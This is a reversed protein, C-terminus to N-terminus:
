LVSQWLEINGKMANGVEATEVSFKVWSSFESKLANALSVKRSETLWGLHRNLVAICDNEPIHASPKRSLSVGCARCAEDAAAVIKVLLPDRRAGGPAHHYEIVDVLFRPLNWLKALWSGVVCHDYEDSDSYQGSERIAICPLEGLDHLLGAVYAKRPESYGCATAIREAFRAALNCHQSLATWQTTTTHDTPALAATLVLNRLRAVGLLVVCDEFRYPRDDEETALTNAQRIVQASLSVDVSLVQVVAKLDLVSQSLLDNLRFVSHAMAPLGDGYRTTLSWLWRYNDASLSIEPDHQRVQGSCRCEPKNYMRTGRHQSSRCVSFDAKSAPAFIWSSETERFWVASSCDRIWEEGVRM